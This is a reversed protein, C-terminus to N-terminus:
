LKPTYKRYLTINLKHPHTCSASPNWISGNKNCQYVRSGKRFRNLRTPGDRQGEQQGINLRCAAIESINQYFNICQRVKAWPRVSNFITWILGTQRDVHKKQIIGYRLFDNYSYNYPHHTTSGTYHKWKNLKGLLEIIIIPFSSVSSLTITM